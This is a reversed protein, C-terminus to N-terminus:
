MLFKKLLTQLNESVWLLLLRQKPQDKPKILFSSKRIRWGMDRVPEVVEWHPESRLFMSVFQLAQETIVVYINKLISHNINCNLFYHWKGTLNNSYNEPDLFKKVIDSAALMSNNLITDMMVQLGHQREAIFEREM